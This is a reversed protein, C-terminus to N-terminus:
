QDFRCASPFSVPNLPKCEQEVAMSLIELTTSGLWERFTRVAACVARTPVFLLHIQPFFRYFRGVHAYDPASKESLEVEFAITTKEKPGQVLALGDPRHLDTDPVWTPHCHPQFRRLEQETILEVGDPKHFAWEGLHFATVLLDHGPNESQYGDEKLLPLRGRISHYGAKSLTWVYKHGTPTVRAAPAARAAM